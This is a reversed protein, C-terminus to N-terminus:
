LETVKQWQIGGIKEALGREGERNIGERPTNPLPVDGWVQSGPQPGVMERAAECQEEAQRTDALPMFLM